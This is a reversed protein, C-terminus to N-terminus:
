TQKVYCHSYALIYRGLKGVVYQPICDRLISINSCIPKKEVALSKKLHKMAVELLTEKAPNKGFHDEFWRGGM